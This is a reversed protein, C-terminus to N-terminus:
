MCNGKKQYLIHRVNEMRSALYISVLWEIININSYKLQEQEEKNYFTGTRVQLKKKNKRVRKM